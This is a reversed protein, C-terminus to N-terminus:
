NRCPLGEGSKLREMRMGFVTDITSHLVSIAAGAIETGASDAIAGVCLNAILTIMDANNDLGENFVYLNSQDPQLICGIFKAGELNRTMQGNNIVTVRVM